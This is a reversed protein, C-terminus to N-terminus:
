EVTQPVKICGEAQRIAGALLDERPASSRVEDPRFVNSVPLPHTAPAVGTTDVRNLIDMYILIESLERVMNQREDEALRLRALGAVYDVMKEDIKV